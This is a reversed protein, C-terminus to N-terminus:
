LFAVTSCRSCFFHALWSGRWGSSMWSVVMWSGIDLVCRLLWDDQVCRLLCAHLCDLLCRLVVHGQQLHPGQQRRRRRLPGAEGSRIRLRQHSGTKGTDSGCGTHSVGNPRPQTPDAVPWQPSGPWPPQRLPACDHPEGDTGGSFGTTLSAALATPDENPHAPSPYFSEDAGARWHLLDSQDNGQWADVVCQANAPGM